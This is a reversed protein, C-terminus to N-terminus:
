PFDVLIDVRFVGLPQNHRKTELQCSQEEFLPHRFSKPGCSSVQTPQDEYAFMAFYQGVTLIHHASLLFFIKSVMRAMMLLQVFYATMEVDETSGQPYINSIKKFLVCKYSDSVTCRLYM